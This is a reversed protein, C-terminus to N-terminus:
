MGLLLRGFCNQSHLKSCPSRFDCCFSSFSTSSSSPSKKPPLHLTHTCSYTSPLWWPGVLCPPAGQLPPRARSGRPWTSAGGSTNETGSIRLFELFDYKMKLANPSSKNKPYKKNCPYNLFYVSFVIKIKNLIFLM